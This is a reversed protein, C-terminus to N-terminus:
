GSWRGVINGADEQVRQGSPFVRAFPPQFIKLAPLVFPQFSTQTSSVSGRTRGPLKDRSPRQYVSRNISFPARSLAITGNRRGIQELREAYYMPIRTAQISYRRGPYHFAKGSWTDVGRSHTRISCESRERNQKGAPSDSSLSSYFALPPEPTLFFRSPRLLVLLGLLFGAERSGLTKM